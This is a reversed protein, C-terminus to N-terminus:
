RVGSNQGLGPGVVPDKGAGEVVPPTLIEEKAAALDDEPKVAPDAAGTFRDGLGEPKVTEPAVYERDMSTVDRLNSRVADVFADVGKSTSVSWIGDPDRQYALAFGPSIEALADYNDILRGERNDLAEELALLNLPQVQFVHSELDMMAIYVDGDEGRFYIPEHFVGSLPVEPNDYSRFFNNKVKYADFVEQASLEVGNEAVLVAGELRPDMVVPRDYQFVYDSGMKPDANIKEMSEALSGGFVASLQLVIDAESANSQAAERRIRAEQLAVEDFAQDVAQSFAEKREMSGFPLMDIHDLLAAHDFKGDFDQAGTAGLADFAEQYFVAFNDAVTKAPDIERMDHLLDSGGGVVDRLTIGETFQSILGNYLALEQPSKAELLEQFIGRTVDPIKVTNSFYLKHDILADAAHLTDLAGIIGKVQSLILVKTQEVDLHDIMKVFVPDHVFKEILANPDANLEKEFEELLEKGLEPRYDWTDDLHIGYNKAMLHLVGQLAAQDQMDLVGDTLDGPQPVDHIGVMNSLVAGKAWDKGTSVIRSGLDTDITGLVFDDFFNGISNDGDSMARTLANIQGMLETHRESDPEVRELEKFLENRKVGMTAINSVSKRGDISDIIGQVEERKSHLERQVAPILLRLGQEVTLSAQRVQEATPKAPVAAEVAPAPTTVPAPAPTTGSGAPATVAPAAVSDGMMTSIVAFWDDSNELLAATSSVNDLVEPGLLEKLKQVEPNRGVMQSLMKVADAPAMFNLQTQVLGVITDAQDALGMGDLKERIVAYDIQDGKLIENFLGLHPSSKFGEVATQVRQMIEARKTPDTFDELTVEQGSGFSVGDAGLAESLKSLLDAAHQETLDSADGDVTIGQVGFATLAQELSRITNEPLASLDAM